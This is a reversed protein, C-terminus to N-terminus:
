FLFVAAAVVTTWRCNKDCIASQTVNATRVINKDLKYIEKRQDYDLEADFAIGYTSALMSAALDEAYEGAKSDTEGFSHHESLYGHKAKEAPVAVGISAAVLRNPENSANRALVVFTIQGPKLLQLGKEKSIIKCGPPLISSVNVLNCKEIGADRLALEFSRLQERHKGVGNTFFVKKPTFLTEKFAASTLQEKLSSVEKSMRTIKETNRRAEERVMSFSKGSDKRAKKVAVKKAM